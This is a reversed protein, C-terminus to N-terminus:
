KLWRCILVFFCLSSSLQGVPRRGSVPFAECPCAESPVSIYCSAQLFVHGFLACLWWLLESIISSFGVQLTLHSDGNVVSSDDSPQLHSSNLGLWSQGCGSPIYSKGFCNSVSYLVCDAELFSSPLCPSLIWAIRWLQEGSM